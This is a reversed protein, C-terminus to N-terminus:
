KRRYAFPASESRRRFSWTERFFADRQVQNLTGQFSWRPISVQTLMVHAARGTVMEFQIPPPLAKNVGDKAASDLHRIIHEKEIDNTNSYELIAKTFNETDEIQFKEFDKFSQILPRSNKLLTEYYQECFEIDEQKTLFQYRAIHEAGMPADGKICMETNEGKYLFLTNAFRRGKQKINYFSQIRGAKYLPVWLKIAKDMELRNRDINHIIKIKVGREMCINMLSYFRQFYGFNECMWMMDLDSYLSMVGNRSKAAETLFRIVAIRLGDTGVYSDTQSDEGEKLGAEDLSLFTIDSTFFKQPKQAISTKGGCLWDSLFEKTLESKEPLGAMKYFESVLDRKKIYICLVESLKSSFLYNSKVSRKGNRYRSIVSNDTNTLRALKSNSFDLLEMMKSLREGFIEDKQNQASQRRVKAKKRQPISVGSYLHNIIQESFDKDSIEGEVGVIRKIEETKSMKKSQAVIYNSLKGVVEGRRTPIRNGGRIHSIYSDSCGSEKAIESNKRLNLLFFIENLKACFTCNEM